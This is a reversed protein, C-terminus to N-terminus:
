LNKGSSSKYCASNSGWSSGWGWSIAMGWSRILWDSSRDVVKLITNIVCVIAWNERMILVSVVIVGLSFVTYVKRITANLNDRVRSSRITINGIDAIFSFCDIWFIFGM